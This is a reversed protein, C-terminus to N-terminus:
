PPTTTWRSGKTISSRSVFPSKAELSGSLHFKPLREPVFPPNGPLRKTSAFASHTGLVVSRKVREHRRPSVRHHVADHRIHRHRDLDHSGNGLHIPHPREPAGYIDEEVREELM